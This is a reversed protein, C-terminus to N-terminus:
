RIRLQEITRQHGETPYIAVKTGKGHREALKELAAEWTKVWQIKDTQWRWEQSKSHPFPNVVVIGNANLGGTASEGESVSNTLSGPRFLPGGYDTGWRGFTRHILMGMANFNLAVIDGDTKVSMKSLSYQAYGISYVNSVSVDVEKRLETAYAKSVRESGARHAQIFDGCFLDILEYGGNWVADIVYDLGVMRAAEEMDARCDNASLNSIGAKGGKERITKHMYCITDIGSIGPIIMKAGGSYGASGHADISGISIKLDCAMVEKNVKLTNGRSTKGLKVLNMWPSHTFVNIRELIDGGVKKALHELWHHGHSGCSVIIRIHEDSIGSDNLERLVYPLTLGAKTIRSMDDVMIVAEKRNRALKSLPKTGIPNSIKNQIEDPTLAEEDHCAMKCMEVDWDDPFTLDLPGDYFFHNPYVRFKQM